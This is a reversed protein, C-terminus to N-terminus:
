VYRLTTVFSAILWRLTSRMWRPEYGWTASAIASIGSSGGCRTM